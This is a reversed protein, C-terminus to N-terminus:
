NRFLKPCSGTARSSKVATSFRTPFAVLNEKGRLEGATSIVLPVGLSPDSKRKWQVAKSTPM